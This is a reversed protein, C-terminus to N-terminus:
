RERKRENQLAADECAAVGAGGALAANRTSQDHHEPHDRHEPDRVATRDQIEDGVPREDAARPSTDAGASVAARDEVPRDAVATAGPRAPQTTTRTKKFREFM